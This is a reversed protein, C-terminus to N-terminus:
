LKRSTFLRAAMGFWVVGCGGWPEVYGFFFLVDFSRRKKNDANIAHNPTARM